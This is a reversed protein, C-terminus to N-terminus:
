TRENKVIERKFKKFEQSTELTERVQPTIINIIKESTM